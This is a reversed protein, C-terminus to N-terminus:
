PPEVFEAHRHLAADFTAVKAAGHEQATELIVYDAFDGRGTAYRLLARRAVDRREVVVDAAEVVGHLQAIVEARPFHFARRLVWVVEVLTVISM